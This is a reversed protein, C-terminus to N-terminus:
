SCFSLTLGLSYTTEVERRIDSKSIDGQGFYTMHDFGSELPLLAWKKIHPAAFGCQFLVCTHSPSSNITELSFSSSIYHHPLSVSYVTRVLREGWVSNNDESFFNLSDELSTCISATSLSCVLFLFHVLSRCPEPHYM